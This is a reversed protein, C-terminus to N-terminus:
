FLRLATWAVFIGHPATEDASFGPAKEAGPNWTASDLMVLFPKGLRRRVV